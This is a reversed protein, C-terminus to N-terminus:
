ILEVGLGLLASTIINQDAGQTLHDPFCHHVIIDLTIMVQVSM